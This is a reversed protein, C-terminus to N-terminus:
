KADIKRILEIFMRTILSKFSVSLFTHYWKWKKSWRILSTKKEAWLEIVLLPITFYFLKYFTEFPKKNYTIQNYLITFTPYM